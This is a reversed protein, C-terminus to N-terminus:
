GRISRTVARVLDTRAVQLAFREGADRAPKAYWPLARRRWKAAPLDKPLEDTFQKGNDTLVEQPVGFVQLARAFAACVARGTAREVIQAIVCYRSLNDVGTAVKAESLEGTVPNVLMVGGVIDMQWLQM